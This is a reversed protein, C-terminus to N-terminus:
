RFIDISLNHSTGVQANEGAVPVGVVEGAATASTAEFNGVQHSRFGATRFDSTGSQSSSFVNTPTWDVVIRGAPGAFTIFNPNGDTNTDLRLGARASGTLDANPITGSGGAISHCFPNCAEIDYFLIVAPANVPGGRSVQLVGFRPNGGSSDGFSISGVDGNSVFHTQPSGTGTDAPTVDAVLGGSGARGLDTSGDRCAVLVLPALFGAVLRSSHCPM